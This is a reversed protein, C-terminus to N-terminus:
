NRVYKQALMYPHKWFITTGGFWGDKILNEMIEVMWKPTSRNKSVGMHKSVDKSVWTVHALVIFSMTIFGKSSPSLSVSSSILSSQVIPAFEQHIPSNPLQTYQCKKFCRTTLVPNLSFVLNKLTSTPSPTEIQTKRIQIKNKTPSSEWNSQYTKFGTVLHPYCIHKRPSHTRHFKCIWCEQHHPLSTSLHFSKSSHQNALPYIFFLM